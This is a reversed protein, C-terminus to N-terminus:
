TLCFDSLCLPFPYEQPPKSHYMTGENCIMCQHGYGDQDEENGDSVITLDNDEKEKLEEMVNFYISIYHNRVSMIM